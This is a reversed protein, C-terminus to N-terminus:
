SWNDGDPGPLHEELIGVDGGPLGYEDVPGCAINVSVGHLQGFFGAKMNHGGGGGSM